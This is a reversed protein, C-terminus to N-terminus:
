PALTASLCAGSDLSRLNPAQCSLRQTPARPVADSMNPSHTNPSPRVGQNRQRQGAYHLDESARAEIAACPVLELDTAGVHVGEHREARGGSESIACPSQKATETAVDIEHFGGRNDSEDAQPM